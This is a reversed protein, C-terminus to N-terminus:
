PSSIEAPHSDPLATALPIIRSQFKQSRQTRDKVQGTLQGCAADIDQGRTKRKFTAINAALLIQQFHAVTEPDSTQYDAGLFPNFPILNVKSPVDRLIKILARAHEPQDNVGALMVYEMTIRQRKDEGLYRKCAALLTAIPYKKNINETSYATFIYYFM